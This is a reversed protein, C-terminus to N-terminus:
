VRTWSAIFYDDLFLQKRADLVLPADAALVPLLATLLLGATAVKRTTQPLARSM